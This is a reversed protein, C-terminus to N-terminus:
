ISGEVAIKCLVRKIVSQQYESLCTYALGICYVVYAIEESDLKLTQVKLIEGGRSENMEM